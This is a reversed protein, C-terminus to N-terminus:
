WEVPDRFEEGVGEPDSEFPTTADDFHDRDMAQDDEDQVEGAIIKQQEAAEPEDPDLPEEIVSDSNGVSLLEDTSPDGLPAFSPDLVEDPLFLERQRRELRSLDSDGDGDADDDGAVVCAPMMAVSCVVFLAASIFKRM